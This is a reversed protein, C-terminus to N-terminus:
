LKFSTLEDTGGTSDVVVEAESLGGTDPQVEVQGVLARWDAGQNQELVSLLNIFGTITTRPTRFYAEGLREHCQGMFATIGDDPLLYKGPDGSAYVHRLKGLLLYFEEQSLSALRVVPGTFDVLGGKAYTNEALRSQLAPYSYLGRRSDMLFDPTGGLVFGIGETTGQLADNLIRLLQEYNATRAQTNSLKYLNVLEDLCVLLGSYGAIRVFRALLKLQDYFSADDIISRVGLAQRADTKTSFEGRLWRVADTKLQDNGEQFGRWYSAIVAAFDYGNVLEQLSELRRHIEQEADKGSGKADNMVGGVFKEVVGGLAGGEPKNRTAINRM